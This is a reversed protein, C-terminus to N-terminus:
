VPKRERRSITSVPCLKACQSCGNSTEGTFFPKTSRVFRNFEYNVLGSKLGTMAVQSM